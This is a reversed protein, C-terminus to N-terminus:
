SPPGEFIQLETVIAHLPIDWPDPALRDVQQVSWAIGIRRAAPHAAFYRDYHGAGQGIRNLGADFGLLPTLLLDAAIERADAAPQRLRHPGEALPDGPAWALFRMAGGPEAIHPLATTLGADHAAALAPLPDAEDGLPVYAAISRADGLLSLINRTM